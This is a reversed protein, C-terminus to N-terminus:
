PHNYKNWHQSTTDFIRSVLVFLHQLINSITGRTATRSLFIHAVAILSDRIQWRRLNRNVEIFALVWWELTKVMKTVLRYLGWWNGKTNNTQSGPREGPEWSNRLLQFQPSFTNDIMLHCLWRLNVDNTSLSVMNTTTSSINITDQFSHLETTINHDTSSEVALHSRIIPMTVDISKRGLLCNFHEDEGPREFNVWSKISVYIESSRARALLNKYVHGRLQDLRRFIEITQQAINLTATTQNQCSVAFHKLPFSFESFYMQYLIKHM